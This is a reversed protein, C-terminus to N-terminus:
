HAVKDRFCIRGLPSPLARPIPSATLHFRIAASYGFTRPRTGASRDGRRRGPRHRRRRPRHLVHLPWPRAPPAAVRDPRPEGPPRLVRDAGRGARGPPGCGARLLHRAGTAQREARVGDPAIWVFRTVNGHEDEVGDRLVVCGYIEAASAAGLAAWPRESAGVTRVAEATSEAIWSPEPCSRACSGPASPARSPIVSWPRSRVSRSSRAPLSRMASPNTTSAAITM